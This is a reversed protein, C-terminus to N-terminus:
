RSAEAAPFPQFAGRAEALLDRLEKLRKAGLGGLIQKVFAEVSGDLRDLM